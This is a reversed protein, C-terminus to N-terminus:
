AHRGEIVVAHRKLAPLVRKETAAIHAKIIRLAGRRDRRQMAEILAIHEAVLQAPNHGRLNAVSVRVLRDAQGILDCLAAAMRPNGSAHALASHFARNYAIFDEHNGAFRRFQDLAKLAHDDANEIAEAVCAPELALRFRLLDRADTLSIPNVRYGQRPQVTVLHERELRLLAERVPQRSVAYREALDQERVDDGPALRCTLIDSRLNEYVNDRLLM